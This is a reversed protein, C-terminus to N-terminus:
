FQARETGQAEVLQDFSDIWEQTEEPDRDSLQYTLGSRIQSIHEEVAVTEGLNIHRDRHNPALNRRIVM